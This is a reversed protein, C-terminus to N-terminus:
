SRSRLFLWLNRANGKIHILFGMAGLMYSRDPGPEFYRENSDNVIVSRIGTVDLGERWGLDHGHQIQLSGYDDSVGPIRTGAALPITATACTSTLCSLFASRFRAQQTFCASIQLVDALQGTLSFEVGQRRTNRVKQYTSRGNESAEVALENHTDSRFM